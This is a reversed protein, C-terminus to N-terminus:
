KLNDFVIVEYNNQLLRDVLHIGVFGEGGTVLARM